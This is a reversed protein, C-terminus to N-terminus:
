GEQSAISCIFQSIQKEVADNVFPFNDRSYAVIREPSIDVGAERAIEETVIQAQLAAVIAGSLIRPDIARIIDTLHQRGTKEFLAKDM